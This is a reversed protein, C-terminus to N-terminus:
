TLSVPEPFVPQAAFHDPASRLVFGIAMTILLGHTLLTTFLDASVILALVPVVFIAAYLPKNGGRSLADVLALILGLAASYLFVGLWMGNAMGMGIWGANANTQPSNLYVEGIKFPPQVDYPPTMLGLTIRSGSWWYPIGEGGFYDIYYGTLLSPLLLGRRLIIDTLPGGGPFWAEQYAVYESYLQMSNIMVIGAGLAALGLFPLLMGRRGAFVFAVVIIFPHLLPEKYAGFVFIGVAGAAFLLFMVWDRRYLSLAMGSAILAKSVWPLLYGFVPPLNRAAERRADYIRQFDLTAFDMQGLAVLAIFYTAVALMFARSAVRTDVLKLSGIPLNVKAALAVIACSVLTIAPFDWDWTGTAFLAMTPTAVLLLILHLFFESPRGRDSIAQPAAFAVLGGLVAKAAFAGDFIGNTFGKDIFYKGPLICALVILVYYALHLASISVRRATQSQM